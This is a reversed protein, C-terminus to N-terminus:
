PVRSLETAGLASALDNELKRDLGHERRLLHRIAEQAIGFAGAEDGFLYGWGGERAVAGAEDIGIACSGSGAIAAVGPRLSFAGAHAVLLDTDIDIRDAQLVRAAVKRAGAELRGGPVVGSLGLFASTFKVPGAASMAEEV